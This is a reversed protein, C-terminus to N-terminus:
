SYTAEAALFSSNSKQLGHINVDVMELGVNKDLMIAWGELQEDTMKTRERLAAREPSKRAASTRAFLQRNEVFAHVLDSEYIIGPDVVEKTERRVVDIASEDDQVDELGVPGSVENISDYTDDYEDDYMDYIRQLINAKEEQM